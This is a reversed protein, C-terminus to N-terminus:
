KNELSRQYMTKTFGTIDFVGENNKVLTEEETLRPGTTYYSLKCIKYDGRDEFFRLVLFDKDISVLELESDEKVLQSNFLKLIYKDTIDWNCEDQDSYEDTIWLYNYVDGDFMVAGMFYEDFYTEQAIFTGDANQQEKREKYIRWERGETETLLKRIDKLPKVDQASLGFALLLFFIGTFTIKNM